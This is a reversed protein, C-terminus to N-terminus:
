SHKTMADRFFAFFSARIKSPRLDRSCVCGWGVNCLAIFRSM